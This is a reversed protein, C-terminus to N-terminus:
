TAAAAAADALEQLADLRACRVFHGPAAERLAIEGGTFAAAHGPFRKTFRAASSPELPSPPDGALIIRGGRRIGPVASLLAQTYPHLPRQYLTETPGLEVIEGLYMVAVRACLHAVVQLDHSIFVYALGRDRQLDSLLNLVQAQVSVDLASVPEDCVILKPELAIARAIGIRQRQGGSFQHPYRELHQAELGVRQLLAAARARAEDAGCRGHVVLPEAVAEGVTLRPNLSGYPDQFIMQMGPRRRRLASASLATLEEGAFRVSGATPEILRLLCRGATTKGCGSEGVLGLAEGADLDLDVGDVARVHGVTKGFVGKRIPFLKRLGRVRLLPETM